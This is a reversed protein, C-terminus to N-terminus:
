AFRYYTGTDQVSNKNVEIQGDPATHMFYWPLDKPAPGGIVHGQEDYLSGHCPCAFGTDSLGVTCGLHTCKTSIAAFGREDRVIAIREKDFTVRAGLSYEDPKGVKFVAPASYTVRPRLFGHLAGLAVFGAAAAAGGTLLAFFRRRTMNESSVDTKPWLKM